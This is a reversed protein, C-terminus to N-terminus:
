GTVGSSKRRFAYALDFVLLEILRSFNEPFEESHVINYKTRRVSFPFIYEYVLETVSKRLKTLTLVYGSRGM